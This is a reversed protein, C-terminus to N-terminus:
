GRVFQEFQEQIQELAWAAGEQPTQGQLAVRGLANGWVQVGEAQAYAPSLDAWSPVTPGRLQETVARINPDDSQAFFPDDLLETHAPFWRAQGGKLITLMNEPRMVFSLFDLAADKKESAEFVVADHVLTISPMPGGVAREPFGTTVIDAWQEPDDEKVAGPMSLSGNPTSLVSRNLFYTNNSSDQWNVSDQPTYGQAYLETIWALADAIGARVDDTTRLNNEEDLLEVGFSRLVQQTDYNTDGAATGMPWGVAFVDSRGRARFADQADKWFQWHGNWDRPAQSYDMGVEALMSRWHFMSVTFQWMPVSYYSATGAENDYLRGARLAGDVLPVGEVVPSVDALLGEWAHKPNLGKEAFLIDPTNSSAIASQEKQTIDQTGYFQVDLRMGSSQEWARGIATLAEDEAPYFGQNWWVVLADSSGAGSSGCSALLPAAGVGAALLGAGRLFDRRGFGSSGTTETM